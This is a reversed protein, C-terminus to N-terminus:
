PDENSVEDKQVQEQGNENVGESFFIRLHLSRVVIDFGDFQGLSDALLLKLILFVLAHLLQSSALKFELRVLSGQILAYKDLLLLFLLLFLPSVECAVLLETFCIQGIDFIHVCFLDSQHKDLM